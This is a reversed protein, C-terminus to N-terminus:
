PPHTPSHTLPHTSPVWCSRFQNDSCPWSMVFFVRLNTPTKKQNKLLCTPKGLERVRIKKIYANRSSYSLKKPYLFFIHQYAFNLCVPITERFDERLGGWGGLGSVRFGLNSTKPTWFSSNPTQLHTDPHSISYSDM